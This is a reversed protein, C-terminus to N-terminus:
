KFRRWYFKKNLEPMTLVLTDGTVKYPWKVTNGSDDIIHVEDKEITYKGTRSKMNSSQQNDVRNFIVRGKDTFEILTRTSDRPHEQQGQDNVQYLLEWSDLLAQDLNKPASAAKGQDKSPPDVRPEKSSTLGVCSACMLAVVLAPM